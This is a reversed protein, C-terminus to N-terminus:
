GRSREIFGRIEAPLKDFGCTCGYFIGSDGDYDRRQWGLKCNKTHGMYKAAERWALLERAMWGRHAETLHKLYDDSLQESM